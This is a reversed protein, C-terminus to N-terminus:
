ALGSPATSPYTYNYKNYRIINYDGYNYVNAEVLRRYFLGSYFKGGASNWYLLESGFAHANTYNLDHTLGSVNLRVYGSNIWGTTGNSLRVQYWGDSIDSFDHGIVQVSTGRSVSSVVSNGTGAGSRVNVSETVTAPLSEGSPIEPPVM